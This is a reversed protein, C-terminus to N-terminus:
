HVSTALRGPFPHALRDPDDLGVGVSSRLRTHDPPDRDLMSMNLISQEPDDNAFTHFHERVPGTINRDEVSLGARLLAAVDDYRSLFRFGMPSQHVPDEERLRQYQPYPDDLFGPEGPNFLVDDTM